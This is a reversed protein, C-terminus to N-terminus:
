IWVNVLNQGTVFGDPRIWSEVSHPRSGSSLRVLRATCYANTFACTVLSM